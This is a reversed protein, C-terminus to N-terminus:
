HPALLVSGVRGTIVILATPNDHAAAKAAELGIGSSGGTIIIYESYSTM